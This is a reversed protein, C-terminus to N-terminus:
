GGAPGIGAAKLRRELEGKQDATLAERLQKALDAGSAENRASREAWYAAGVPDAAGTLRGERLLIALRSQAGSHNATAAAQYLRLAEAPNAAIGVGNEYLAALNFVAAPIDRQAAREFWQAAERPNRSGGFGNVLMIGYENQAVALGREAALRCWAASAVADQPLEKGERYFSSLQFCAEADGQDAALRCLRVAEAPDPKGLKGNLQYIALRTTAGAFGRESAIKLWRAAAAWDPTGSRYTEEFIGMEYASEPDGLKVAQSGLEEAKAVDKPIVTGDRYLRHLARLCPISGRSAGEQFHALAIAGDRPMGVGQVALNGLLFFTEKAGPLQRAKNLVRVAEDINQERGNDGNLLIMAQKEMALVSGGLIAKDLWSHGSPWLAQNPSSLLLLALKEQAEVQNAQAAKLYLESALDSNGTALIRNALEMAAASDGGNAKEALAQLEQRAKEAAPDPSVSSASSAQQAALDGLVLVALFFCSLPNV